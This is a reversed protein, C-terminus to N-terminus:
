RQPCVARVPLGCSRSYATSRGDEVKNSDFGLYRACNTFTLTSTWYVGKSGASYLSNGNRNGAAPLFISNGNKMSAVKYGNVGNQTTWSWICYIRLEEKQNYTPMRWSGGWNVYAADDEPDLTTKGDFTSDYEYDNYKTMISGMNDGCWWYTSWSYSLKPMIEGWAFYEGYDEPTSAGINMNAWKTGSPLGLDVAEAGAPANDNDGSDSTIFSVSEVTSVPYDVHKGDKLEVRMTVQAMATSSMLITVLISKLTKKM